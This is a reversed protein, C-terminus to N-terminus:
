GAATYIPSYEINVQAECVTGDKKLLTSNGFKEVFGQTVEKARGLSLAGASVEASKTTLTSNYLTVGAEAQSIGEGYFQGTPMGNIMVITPSNSIPTSIVKTNGTMMYFDSSPYTTLSWSEQGVGQIDKSYSYSTVFFTRNNLTYGSAGGVPCFGPTFSVSVSLQSDTCNPTSMDTFETTGAGGYISISVTESGTSEVAFLSDSGLQYLPSFGKGEQWSFSIIGDSLGDFSVVSSQGIIFPM